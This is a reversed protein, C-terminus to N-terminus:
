RSTWQFEADAPMGPKLKQDPNPIEIKIGFVQTTREEKTQISKPTFEAQDSIYTIKGVFKQNPYSDVSVNVAEGLSVKGVNQEALYVTLKVLSLDAMTVIPTGITALEGPEIAKVLIVGSIPAKIVANDFQIQATDLAAKAVDLASSSADYQQPSIMKDAFLQRNRAFDDKAIQYKAQAGNLAQQLESPDLVALTEGQKVQSGEDVKVELVRAVVKSSVTVDTVEITGSATLGHDLSNKYFYYIFGLAIIVVVALLLAMRRRDM